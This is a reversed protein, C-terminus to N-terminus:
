MAVCTKNYQAPSNKLEEMIKTVEAFFPDLVYKPYDHVASIAPANKL